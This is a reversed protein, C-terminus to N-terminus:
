PKEFDTITERIITAVDSFDIPSLGLLNQWAVVYTRDSSVPNTLISVESRVEGGKKLPGLGLKSHTICGAKLIGARAAWPQDPGTAARRLRDLM